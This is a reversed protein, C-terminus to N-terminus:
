APVIRVPIGRRTAESITHLTGRSQGDWFALVIAPEMDLMQLNRLVGASKGKSWDAPVREIHYNMDRAVEDAISDAGRAGGHIITLPEDWELALDGIADHVKLANSWSRSGCVLVASVRSPIANRDPM